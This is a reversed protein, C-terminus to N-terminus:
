TFQNMVLTLHIFQLNLLNCCISTFQRQLCRHLIISECKSTTTRFKAQFNSCDCYPICPTGIGLMARYQHNASNPMKECRDTSTTEKSLKPTGACWHCKSWWLISKQRWNVASVALPRSWSLQSVNAFSISYMSINYQIYMFLYREKLNNFTLKNRRKRTM